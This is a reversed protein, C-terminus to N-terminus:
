GGGSDSRGERGARRRSGRECKEFLIEYTIGIERNREDLHENLIGSPITYGPNLDQHDPVITLIPEIGTQLRLETYAISIERHFRTRCIAHLQHLAFAWDSSDNDLFAYVIRPLNIGARPQEDEL